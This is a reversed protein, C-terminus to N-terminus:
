PDDMLGSVGGQAERLVAKGETLELAELTTGWTKFPKGPTIIASPSNFFNLSSSFM